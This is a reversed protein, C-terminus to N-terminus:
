QHTQDWNSLSLKTISRIFRGMEATTATENNNLVSREDSASASSGPNLVSAKILDPIEPM